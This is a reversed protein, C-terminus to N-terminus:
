HLLTKKIILGFYIVKEVHLQVGLRIWFALLLDIRAANRFYLLGFIFILYFHLTLKLLIFIINILRYLWTLLLQLLTKSLGDVELLYFDECTADATVLAM